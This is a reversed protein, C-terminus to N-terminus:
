LGSRRPRPRHARAFEQTHSSEHARSREQTHSDCPAAPRVALRSPAWPAIPVPAPIACPDRPPRASRPALTSIARSGPSYWVLETLLGANVISFM